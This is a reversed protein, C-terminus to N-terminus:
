EARPKICFYIDEGSRLGFYSIRQAGLERVFGDVQVLFGAHALRVGYDRGYRRVHDAQKFIREREHPSVIAPDELTVARKLDIPSQLIAWGGPRLVRWIERMAQQDDEVHELVHNCLVVDFTDDAFLMKTVDMHVMALPSYLDATTYDLNPMASFLALFVPEPAFHLMRLPKTFLNTRERLYLWLLRHRELSGCRPCRANPRPKVGFTLFTRFHGGCCPCSVQHGYHWAGSLSHYLAKVAPQYRAPVIAKTLPKLTRM